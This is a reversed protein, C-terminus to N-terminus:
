NNQKLNCDLHWGPGPWQLTWHILTRCEVRSVLNNDPNLVKTKQGRSTLPQGWNLVEQVERCCMECCLLRICCLMCALLFVLSLHALLHDSKLRTNATGDWWRQKIQNMLFPDSPEGQLCTPPDYIPCSYCSDKFIMKPTQRGSEERCQDQWEPKAVYYLTM